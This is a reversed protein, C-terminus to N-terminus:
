KSWIIIEKGMRKKPNSNISRRAEVIKYKFQSNKNNLDYIDIVIDSNSNSLIVNVGRSILEIALDRLRIQDDFGFGGSTYSTFSETESIPIYPPDFYVLDNKKASFTTAEFDGNYFNINNKNFFKSLEFINDEDIIEPNSQRGYPVNFQGHSNVRYMGNFCTKNLYIMRASLEIQKKRSKLNNFFNPTRDLIRLKLFYEKNNNNKHKKVEKILENPYKKITKYLYILEINKDSIEANVPKLHFFLAGGGFFPEFYTNLNTNFNNIHEINTLENILQRKGGVWKLVPKM